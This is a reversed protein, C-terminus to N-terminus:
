QFENTRQTFEKVRRSQPSHVKSLQWSTKIMQKLEGCLVHSASFACLFKKEIKKKFCLVNFVLKVEKVIKVM